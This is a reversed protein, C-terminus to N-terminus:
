GNLQSAEEVGNRKSSSKHPTSSDRRRKQSYESQRPSMILGSVTLGAAIAVGLTLYPRRRAFSGADNLMTEVDNKAIYGSFQEITDSVRSVQESLTPLDTMSTAYGRTAQAVDQLKEAGYIKRKRLLSEALAVVDEFIGYSSDANHPKNARSSSKTKSKTNAM